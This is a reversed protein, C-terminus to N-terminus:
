NAGRLRYFRAGATTSIAVSNQGAVIEVADNVATWVPTELSISSELVYGAAGYPWSIQVGGGAPVARLRPPPEDSDLIGNADRDLGIRNGSGPPVGMLTLVNGALVNAELQAHTLGPVNTSDVQYSASLPQYLLGHPVGNITGKVVLNINSLAAQNELLAWDNSITGTQINSSVLTRSYGVAPAMGNDFCLLFANLNVKASQPVAGFIPQTLFSVIDAQEGDHMFGFGAISDAGATKTMSAKQYLNRLQPLKVPQFRMPGEGVPHIANTSGVGPPAAHCFTCNGLTTQQTDFLGRGLLANGGAFNTPYTRDLNQNPNPAFTMTEIFDRFATMDLDNMVAGGLLTNFTTNFDIFNTKDGRWHFPQNDPLGRLTQTMMPGKMPHEQAPVKVGNTLTLTVAKMVGGPDGLDWALLDNDGDVHCTACSANGNGSLKTDYLFGRGNRIVAPTPDYSGAPIEKLVSDNSTDVISITNSIRNHVYLRHTSANLALGRPGRKNRPDAASGPANGIEIRALINGANDLRAVRDSGFAATYLATGNPEFAVATPQALANSLAALNTVVAYDVGPNLDYFARAGSAIDIRTIRNDVLHGRLVPEFRLLNRADTNAVYLDGNDPRVALALNITGVNTFYRTVTMGAVDIEAVDNDPMKFQIVNTWTPDSADVILSVRPPTPLNPNTPPPQLPATGAPIQTTHSGSLAFAAYVKTGDASVALARPDEGFLPITALLGHTTADFVVVRNRRGASVFAKGGAFVVDGPEDQVYLTDTVLRQSVSVISISDSVENVVWAENSTRPNVSVPELGVPIEAILAPSSPHALDFVSLRGDATNVAFLRTGDPSLRIPSTQKGEFNIYSNQAPLLPAAFLLSAGLLSLCAGRPTM